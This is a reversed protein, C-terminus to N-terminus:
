SLFLVFYLFKTSIITYPNHQNSYFFCLKRPAFTYSSNSLFAQYHGKEPSDRLTKYATRASLVISAVVYSNSNNIYLNIIANSHM